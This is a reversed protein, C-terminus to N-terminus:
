IGLSVVMHREGTGRVDTTLADHPQLRGHTPLYTHICTSVNDIHVSTKAAEKEISGLTRVQGELEIDGGEVAQGRRGVMQSVRAEVDRCLQEIHDRTEQLLRNRGLRDWEHLIDKPTTCMRCPMAAKPSDFILCILQGEPHDNVFYSTFPRMRVIEGNVYFLLSGSSSLAMLEEMITSLYKHYLKRKVSRAVADSVGLTAIQDDTVEPAYGVLGKGSM